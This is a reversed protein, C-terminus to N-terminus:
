IRRPAKEAMYAKLHDPLQTGAVYLTERPRTDIDLVLDLVGSLTSPLVAVDHWATVEEFIQNQCISIINGATPREHTVKFAFGFKIPTIRNGLQWVSGLCVGDRSDFVRVAGFEEPLPTLHIGKVAGPMDLYTYGRLLKCFELLKSDCGSRDRLAAKLRAIAVTADSDISHPSLEIQYM